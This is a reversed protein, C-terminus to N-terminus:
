KDKKKKKEPKVVISYATKDKENVDVIVTMGAKLDSLSAKQGNIEVVTDEKVTITVPTKDEKRVKIFSISNEEIKTLEGLVGHGQNKGRAHTAGALLFCLISFLIFLSKM